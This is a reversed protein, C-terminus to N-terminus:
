LFISSFPTGCTLPVRTDPFPISSPRPVVVMRVTSPDFFLPLSRLFPDLSNGLPPPPFLPPDLVYFPCAAFQKRHSLYESPIVKCLVLSILYCFSADYPLPLPFFPQVRTHQQVVKIMKGPHHSTLRPPLYAHRSVHTQRSKLWRGSIQFPPPFLHNPPSTLLPVSSSIRLYPLAPQSLTYNIFPSSLFDPHFSANKRKCPHFPPLSRLM